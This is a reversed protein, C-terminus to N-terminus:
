SKVSTAGLRTATEGIGTAVLEAESVGLQRAADRIRTKPNEARFDAWRTKLPQESIIM